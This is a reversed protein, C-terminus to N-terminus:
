ILRIQGSKTVPLESSEERKRQRLRDQFKKRRNFIASMGSEVAKIFEEFRRADAPDDTSVVQRTETGTLAMLISERTRRTKVNDLVLGFMVELPTKAWEDTAVFKKLDPRSQLYKVATAIEQARKSSM